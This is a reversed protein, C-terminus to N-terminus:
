IANAFLYCTLGECSLPILVKAKNAACLDGECQDPDYDSDSDQGNSRKPLNKYPPIGGNKGLMTAPVPLGLQQLRAGNRMCQQLRLAEYPNMELHLSFIISLNSNM